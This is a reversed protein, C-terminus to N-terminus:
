ELGKKTNEYMQPGSAAVQAPMRLTRSVSSIVARMVAVSRGEGGCVPLSICCALAQQFIVLSSGVLLAARVASSSDPNELHRPRPMLKM